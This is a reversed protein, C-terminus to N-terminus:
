ILSPVLLHYRLSALFCKIPVRLLFFVAQFSLMCVIEDGFLESLGGRGVGGGEPLLHLGDQVALHRCALAAAEEPEERHVYPQQEERNGTEAGCAEVEGARGCLGGALGPM